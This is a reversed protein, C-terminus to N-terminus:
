NNTGHHVEYTDDTINSFEFGMDKAALIIRELSDRTSVKIDHMLIMNTERSTSRLQNVTYEYEKESSYGAADGSDINWDYYKYGKEEVLKTLRSMIGPNFKSVTNSAGGPFRIYNSEVGSAEKIMNRIKELDSFYADESSYIESYNHTCTHLAITHGKEKFKKAFESTRDKCTMFFTAKINYKDLIGLIDDTYDSPGDDFTFYIVKGLGNSVIGRDNNKEKLQSQLEKKEDNEKNLVEKIKPINTEYYNNLKESKKLEKKVKIYKEKNLSYNSYNKYTVTSLNVVLSVFTFIYLGILFRLVKKNNM